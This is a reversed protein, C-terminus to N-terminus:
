EFNNQPNENLGVKTANDDIMIIMLIQGLGVTTIQMQGCRLFLITHVMVKLKIALIGSKQERKQKWNSKDVTKGTIYDLTM